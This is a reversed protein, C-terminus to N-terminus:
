QTKKKKKGGSQAAARVAVLEAAAKSLSEIQLTFYESFIHCEGQAFIAILIGHCVEEAFLDGLRWPDVEIGTDTTITIRLAGYYSWIAFGLGIAPPPPVLGLGSLALCRLYIVNGM